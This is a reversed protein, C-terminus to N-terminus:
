FFAGLEEMDFANEFYNINECEGKKNIIVEAVDFKPQKEFKQESLYMLATKIIKKRKSSDVACIGRVLSGIKRTKVEVFIIYKENEFIIDIEGYRSHYNSEVFTYGKSLLYERTINEGLKGTDIDKM